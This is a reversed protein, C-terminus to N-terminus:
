ILKFPCFLPISYWYLLLLSCSSKPQPKGDGHFAPAKRKRPVAASANGCNSRVRIRSDYSIHYEIKRRLRYVTDNWSFCFPSFWLALATFMCKPKHCVLSPIMYSHNHKTLFLFYKNLAFCVKLIVILLNVGLNFTQMQFFFLLLIKNRPNEFIYKEQKYAVRQFCM